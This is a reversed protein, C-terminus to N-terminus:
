QPLGFRSLIELVDPFTIRGDLNMDGNAPRSQHLRRELVMALTPSGDLTLRTSGKPDWGAAIESEMAADVANLLDTLSPYSGEDFTLHRHNGSWLPKDFGFESLVQLVDPFTVIGDGTVDGSVVLSVPLGGSQLGYVYRETANDVLTSTNAVFLGTALETEIDV